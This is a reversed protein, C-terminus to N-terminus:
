SSSQPAPLPQETAATPCQLQEVRAPTNILGAAAQRRPDLSSAIAVFNMTFPLGAVVSAGGTVGSNHTIRSSRLSVPVLNPQPVPNHPAQMTCMSPLRANEQWVWTDSIAPLDTVVISPRDGLELWGTCFAQSASSPGCHPEQWDPWIMLAASRSLCFGLGVRASITSCM